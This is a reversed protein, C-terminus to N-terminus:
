LFVELVWAHLCLQVNEGHFCFFLQVGLSFDFNWLTIWHFNKNMANEGIFIWHVDRSNYNASSFVCTIWLIKMLVLEHSSCLFVNLWGIFNQNKMPHTVKKWKTKMCFNDLLSLTKQHGVPSQRAAGAARATM